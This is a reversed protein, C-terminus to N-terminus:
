NQTFAFRIDRYAVCWRGRSDIMLDGPKTGPPCDKVNAHGLPRHEHPVGEDEYLAEQAKTLPLKQFPPSVNSQDPDAGNRPDGYCGEQCTM